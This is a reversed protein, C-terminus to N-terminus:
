ATFYIGGSAGCCDFQDGNTIQFITGQPTLCYLYAAEASSTEASVAPAMVGATSGVAIAAATVALTATRRTPRALTMSEM